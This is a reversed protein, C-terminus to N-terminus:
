VHGSEKEKRKIVEHLLGRYRMTGGENIVKIIPRLWKSNIDHSPIRFVLIGLEAALNYKEMDKIYGAGRTHRGKSWIGGELEIAVGSLSYYDFRFKRTKCFRFEKILPEGGMRMWLLRFHQDPKLKM